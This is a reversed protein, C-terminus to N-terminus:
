RTLLRTQVDVGTEGTVVDASGGCYAGDRLYNCLITWDDEGSLGGFRFRGQEDTLTCLATAGLSPAPMNSVKLGAGGYKVITLWAGPVPNGLEDLVRGRIESDSRMAITVPGDDRDADFAGYRQSPGANKGIANDIQNVVRGFGAGGEAGLPHVLM